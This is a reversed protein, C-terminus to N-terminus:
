KSTNPFCMSEKLNTAMILTSAHEDHESETFPKKDMLESLLSKSTISEDREDFFPPNINSPYEPEGVM